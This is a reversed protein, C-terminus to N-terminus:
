SLSREQKVLSDGLLKAVLGPPAAPFSRRMVDWLVDSATM